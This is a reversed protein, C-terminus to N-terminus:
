NMFSPTNWHQPVSGSDHGESGHWASPQSQSQQSPDLQTYLGSSQSIITSFPTQIHTNFSSSMGDGQDNASGISNSYSMNSHHHANPDSDPVSSHATMSPDYGTPQLPSASYGQGSMQYHYMSSPFSSPAQQPTSDVPHAVPLMFGAEGSAHETMGGTSRAGDHADYTSLPSIPSASSMESSFRPPPGSSYQSHTLQPRYDSIAQSHTPSSAYRDSAAQTVASHPINPAHVANIRDKLRQRIGVVPVHKHQKSKSKMNKSVQSRSDDHLTAANSCVFVPSSRHEVTGAIESSTTVNRDPSREESPTRYQNIIGSGMFPLRFSGDFQSTEAEVEDHKRKVGAAIPTSRQRAKEARNLLMELITEAETKQVTPQGNRSTDRKLIHALIDIAVRVADTVVPSTYLPQQIAVYALVVAADFLRRPFIYMHYTAFPVDPAYTMQVQAAHVIALAPEVAKLAIFKREPPISSKNWLWSFDSGQQITTFASPCVTPTFLRMISFYAMFALDCRQTILLARAADHEPQPRAVAPPRLPTMPPPSSDIPPIEDEETGGLKLREPLDNLWKVIDDAIKQAVSIGSNGSDESNPVLGSRFIRLPVRKAIEILRIKVIGFTLNREPLSDDPPPVITSDPNFRTDDVNSPCRTTYEGYQITANYGYADSVLIDLWVVEWWLRRRVEKMFLSMRNISSQTQPYGTGDERKVFTFLGNESQVTKAESYNEDNDPPDFEDPDVGLGMARAEWVLTGVLGPLEAPVLADQCDTSTAHALLLYRASLIYTHILAPDRAAHGHRATNMSLALRALRYLAFATTLDPRDPEADCDSFSNGESAQSYSPDSPPQTLHHAGMRELGADASFAELSSRGAAARATGRISAETAWILAGFALCVAAEAISSFSPASPKASSSMPGECTESTYSCVAEIRACLVNFPICSMGEALIAIRLRSIMVSRTRRPPLRKLLEIALVEYMDSITNPVEEVDMTADQSEVGKPRNERSMNNTPTSPISLGAFMALRQAAPLSRKRGFGFLPMNRSLERDIPQLDLRAKESSVMNGVVSRSTQTSDWPDCDSQRTALPFELALEASCERVWLAAAGDLPAAVSAGRSNNALALVRPIRPGLTSGSLRADTHTSSNAAVASAYVGPISYSPAGIAPIHGLHAQTQQMFLHPGAQWPLGSQLHQQYGQTPVGLANLSGEVVRLRNNISTVDVKEIAAPTYICRSVTNRKTCSECPMRRDCKLKQKKCEACVVTVRSRITPINNVLQMGVSPTQRSSVQGVSSISAVDDKGAPDAPKPSDAAHKAFDTTDSDNDHRWPNM